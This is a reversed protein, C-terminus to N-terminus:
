QVIFEQERGYKYVGNQLIYASYYYYAGSGIKLSSLSCSFSNDSNLNVTMKTSSVNISPARYRIGFELSEKDIDSIGTVSGEIRAITTVFKDCSVDITVDNTTFSDVGRFSCDVGQSKITPIICFRYVTNFTLGELVISFNGNEDFETVDVKLM